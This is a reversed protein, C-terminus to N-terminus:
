TPPTQLRIQWWGPSLRLWKCGLCWCIGSVHAADAIEDAVLALPDATKQYHRLKGHVDLMFDHYHTRQLQLPAPRRLMCLPSSLRLNHCRTRQLQLLAPRAVCCPMCLMADLM